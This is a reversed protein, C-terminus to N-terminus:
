KGKNKTEYNKMREAAKAKQDASYKRGTESKLFAAAEKQYPSGPGHKYAPNAIPGNKENLDRIHSSLRGYYAQYDKDKQTGIDSTSRVRPTPGLSYPASISKQEQRDWIAHTGNDTEHIIFRDRTPREEPIRHSQENLPDRTPTKKDYGMVQESRAKKYLDVRAEHNQRPSEKAAM